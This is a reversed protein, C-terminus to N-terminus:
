SIPVELCEGFARLLELAEPQFQGNRSAADMCAMILAQKKSPKLKRLNLLSETVDRYDFSASSRYIGMKLYDKKLIEDYKARAKDEDNEAIQVLSSVLLSKSDEWHFAKSKAQLEDAPLLAFSLLSYLAFEYVEIKQDCRILARLSKLFQSRQSSSLQRLAPLCHDVFALRAEKGLKQLEDFSRDAVSVLDSQHSGRLIQKQQDRLKEDSSFFVSYCIARASFSDSAQQSIFGSIQSLMQHALGLSIPSLSGVNKGILDRAGAASSAASQKSDTQAQSSKSTESAKSTEESAKSTEMPKQNLAKLRSSISPHTSFWSFSQKTFAPPAIFFHSYNEANFSEIASNKFNEGIKRLAGGIGDPNRTYQVASADALFERQRSIAAQILRGFLIGISGVAMLALGTAMIGFHNRRSGGGRLMLRGLNSIAFIGYIAGSINMNMKMDGHFIHSFEHAVVGQLEDRNLNELCGQTVCVVADAFSNGAAFANISKDPLVFVEPLPVGSAIAMEEVINLLKREHTAKTSPPINKAGLDLAISIGGFSRLHYVRILSTLGILAATALGVISYTHGCKSFDLPDWKLAFQFFGATILLVLFVTLLIALLFLFILKKSLFQAREQHEFFNKM